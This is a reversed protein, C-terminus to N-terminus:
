WMVGTVMQVAGPLRNAWACRLILRIALMNQQFTSRVPAAVVNPAGPTSIPAPSTDEFHIVVESASEIEPLGNFGSAFAGVEVAVLTGRPLISAPIIELAAGGPATLSLIAAQVPNAFIVVQQGGGADAVAGILNGVDRAMAHAFSGGAQDLATPAIPAVGHLLGAPRSPDAAADSFLAADLQRAAAADMAASITAEANFASYTVVEGTVVAIAALKKAPGVMAIGFAGMQVPIPQGELVFAPPPFGSPMTPFTVAAHGSLDVRPALEFLRAAASKRRLSGLFAGVAVDGFGATSSGIPSVAAKAVRGGEEAGWLRIAESQITANGNQPNGLAAAVASRRWLKLPDPKPLDSPLFPKSM